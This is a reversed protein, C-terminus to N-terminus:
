DVDPGLLLSKQSEEVIMSRTELRWGTRGKMRKKTRRETRKKRM